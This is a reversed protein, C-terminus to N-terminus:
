LLKTGNEFKFFSRHVIKAFIRFHLYQIAEGSVEAMNLTNELYFSVFVCCIQLGDTFILFFSTLASGSVSVIPVVFAFCLFFQLFSVASPILLSNFPVTERSFCM